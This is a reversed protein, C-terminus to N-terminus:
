IKMWGAQHLYRNCNTSNKFNFLLSVLVLWWLPLYLRLSRAKSHMFIVAAHCDHLSFVPFQAKPSPLCAAHFGLCAKKKFTPDKHTKQIREFQAWNKLYSRTLDMGPGLPVYLEEVREGKHFGPNLWVEFEFSSPLCAMSQLPNALCNIKSHM